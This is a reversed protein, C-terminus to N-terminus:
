RGQAEAGGKGRDAAGRRRVAEGPLRGRREQDGGRGAACRWTIVIVPLTLGWEQLHQLLQIGSMGPMRVDTIVCGPEIEGMRALFAKASDYSRAHLDASALLFELSQRVAEDDDIVHVVTENPM